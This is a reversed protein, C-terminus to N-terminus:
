PSELAVTAGAQRLKEAQKEAEVKPAGTRLICPAREVLEKSEKLGEGFLARVEKIIKVKSSAEFGLLRLTFIDNVPAQITVPAESAKDAQEESKAVTALGDANKVEREAAEPQTVKALLNDFVDHIASDSIVALANEYLEFEDPALHMGLRERERIRLKELELIAVRAHGWARWMGEFRLFWMLEELSLRTKMRSALATQLQDRILELLDLKDMGQVKKVNYGTKELIDKL